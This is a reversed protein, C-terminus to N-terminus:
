AWSSKSCGPLGIKRNQGSSSGRPPPLISAYTLSLNEWCELSALCLTQYDAKALVKLYTYRDLNRLHQAWGGRFQTQRLPASFSRM